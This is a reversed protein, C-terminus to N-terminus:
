WVRCRYCWTPLRRRAPPTPVVITETVAWFGLLTGGSGGDLRLTEDTKGVWASRRQVSLELLSLPKMGSRQMPVAAKQSALGDSKTSEGRRVSIHGADHVHPQTLSDGVCPADLCEVGNTTRIVGIGDLVM